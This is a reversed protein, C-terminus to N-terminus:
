HQSRASVRRTAAERQHPLPRLQRIIKARISERRNSELAYIHEWTETSLQYASKDRTDRDFTACMRLAERIGHAAELPIGNAIGKAMFATAATLLRRAPMNFKYMTYLANRVTHFFRGKGWHVRHEPSIKHRIEADAFYEIRAGTNLMRYCLDVEEGCFFLAPDYGSVAEFVERRIAHGAGIFRTAPFRTDPRRNSPYDWSTVDNEGTFFNTIRFALACLNPYANMHRVVRALVDRRAFVADSDLAVIYPAQGMATALNRGGAVGANHDLKRLQVRPIDHVYRELREINEADSGQDVILIRQSVGEQEVASDIAALTDDIRNWSLIIVDVDGVADTAPRSSAKTQGGPRRSIGTVNM